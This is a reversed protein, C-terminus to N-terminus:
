VRYFGRLTCWFPGHHGPETVSAYVCVFALKLICHACVFRKSLNLESLAYALKLIYHACVFRKSLNLHKVVSTLKLMCHTCVFWKSLNLHRICFFFHMVLKEFCLAHVCVTNSNRNM